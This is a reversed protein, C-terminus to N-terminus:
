RKSILSPIALLVFSQIKARCEDIDLLIETETLHLVPISYKKFALSKRKDRNISKPLQHWYDGDCEIAMHYDTLYIDATFGQNSRLRWQTEHNIDMHRLLSQVIREIKTNAFRSDNNQMYILSCAHNHFKQTKAKFLKKVQFPIHCQLCILWPRPLKQPGQNHEQRWLASCKRSCFKRRKLDHPPIMKINRCQPCLLEVLDKRSWPRPKGAQSTSRDRIEIDQEKLRKNIVTRSYGLITSIARASMGNHYMRVIENSDVNATHGTPM